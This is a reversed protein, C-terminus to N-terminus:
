YNFYTKWFPRKKAGSDEVLSFNVNIHYLFVRIEKESENDIETLDIIDNHNKLKNSETHGIRM